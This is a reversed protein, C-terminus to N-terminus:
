VKDWKGGYFFFFFQEEMKTHVNLKQIRNEPVRHYRIKM